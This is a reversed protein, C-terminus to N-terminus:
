AAMALAAGSLGLALAAFVVLGRPGDVVADSFRQLVLPAVLIALSASVVAWAIPIARWAALLAVVFALGAVVISGWLLVTAGGTAMHALRHKRPFHGAATLAYLAVCLVAGTFASTTAITAAALQM